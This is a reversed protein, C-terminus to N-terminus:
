QMTLASDRMYERADALAEPSGVKFAVYYDRFSWDGEGLEQASRRMDQSFLRDDEALLEVELDGHSHERWWRRVNELIAEPQESCVLLTTGFRLEEPPVDAGAALSEFGTGIMIAEGESRTDPVRDFTIIYLTLRM